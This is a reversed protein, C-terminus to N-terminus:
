LVSALLYLVATANLSGKKEKSSHHSKSKVSTTKLEKVSKSHTGTISQIFHTFQHSHSAM